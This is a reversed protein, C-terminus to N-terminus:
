HTYASPYQNNHNLSYKPLWKGFLNLDKSPPANIKPKSVYIKFDLLVENDPNLGELLKIAESIKM